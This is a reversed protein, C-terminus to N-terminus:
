FKYAIGVSVLSQLQNAFLDRLFLSAILQIHELGLRAEIGPTFAWFTASEEVTTDYPPDRYNGIGAGSVTEQKVDSYIDVHSIRLLIMVAINNRNYGAAGQIWATAFRTQETGSILWSIEPILSGDWAKITSSGAGWGIGGYLESYIHSKVMTDFVGFGLEGSYQNGNPDSSKHITASGIALVGFHPTIAFAGTVTEGGASATATALVDGKNQLLVASPNSPFYPPTSIPGVTACGAALSAVVLLFLARRM